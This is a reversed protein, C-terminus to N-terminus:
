KPGSLDELLVAELDDFEDDSPRPKNLPVKLVEESSKSVHPRFPRSGSTSESKSLSQPILLSGQSIGKTPQRVNRM